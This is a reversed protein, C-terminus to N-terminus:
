LKSIYDRISDTDSKAILDILSNVLKDLIIRFEETLKIETNEKQNLDKIIRNVINPNSLLEYGELLDYRIYELRKQYTNNRKLKIDALKYCIARLEVKWHNFNQIFVPNKDYRCQIILLCNALLEDAKDTVRCLFDSKSLAQENLNQYHEYKKNVM